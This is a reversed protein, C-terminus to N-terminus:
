MSRLYEEVIEKIKIAQAKLLEFNGDIYNQDNEESKLQHEYCLEAFDDMGLYKCEGKLSHVLIAYNEMDSANKYQKLNELKTDLENYFDELIENYTDIDGLLELSKDVDIGFNTLISHYDM